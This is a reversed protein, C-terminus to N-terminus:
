ALYAGWKDRIKMRMVITKIKYIKNIHRIRMLTLIRIKLLEVQLRLGWQLIIQFWQMQKLGTQRM